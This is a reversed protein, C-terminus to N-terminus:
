GAELYKLIPETAYLLLTLSIARKASASLSGRPLLAEGAYGAIALFALRGMFGYISEVLGEKGM